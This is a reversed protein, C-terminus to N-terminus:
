GPPPTTHHPIYFVACHLTEHIPSLSATQIFTCSMSVQVITHKTRSGKNWGQLRPLFIQFGPKVHLAPERNVFKQHRRERPRFRTTQRDLGPKPPDRRPATHRLSKVRSNQPRRHRLDPSRIAVRQTTEFTATQHPLLPHSGRPLRARWALPRVGTVTVTRGEGGGVARLGVLPALGGLRPARPRSSRRLPSPETAAAAKSRLFVQPRKRM